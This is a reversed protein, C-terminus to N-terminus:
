QLWNFNQIFNTLDSFLELLNFEEFPSNIPEGFPYRITDLLEEELNQFREEIINELTEFKEEMRDFVEECIINQIDENVDELEDWRDIIKNLTEIQDGSLNYTPPSNPTEIETINLYSKIALYGIFCVTTTIMIYIVIENDLNNNLVNIPLNM